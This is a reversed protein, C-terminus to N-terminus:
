PKGKPTLIEENELAKLYGNLVTQQEQTRTSTAVPGTLWARVQEELQVRGMRFISANKPGQEDSYLLCIAIERLALNTDSFSFLVPKSKCLWQLLPRVDETNATKKNQITFLKHRYM